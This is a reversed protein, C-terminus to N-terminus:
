RGDVDKRTRTTRGSLVQIAWETEDDNNKFVQMKEYAAKAEDALGYSELIRGRLAWTKADLTRCLEELKRSMACIVVDPPSDLAALARVEEAVFRKLLGVRRTFDDNDEVLRVDLPRLPRHWLSQTILEVQFPEGSNMGPFSPHLICDVNEKQEIPQQLQTM